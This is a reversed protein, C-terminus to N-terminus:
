RTRESAASRNLATVIDDATRGRHVLQQALSTLPINQRLAYGRLTAFAADMDMSGQQAVIGKAQEIVIRSNVAIELKENVDGSEQTARQQLIGITAIDAM